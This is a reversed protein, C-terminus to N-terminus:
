GRQSFMAIELSVLQDLLERPSQPRRLPEKATMRRVFAVVERPVDPALRGLDAPASQRHEAALESLNRGRYPRQGSLLEFMVAGLSYIDSRIDPQLASVLYEPALYGCTGMVPRDAASGAEDCRRAFSLDILTVHGTPSLLLNGPTVDGHLWGATHLANLAEAAQRAIWLTKLVDFHQGAELRAQLSVGELWPMVLLPPSELVSASLIPVLHPHSITQGVLAERQLLRIAEPNNQWAPRLMKVAYHAPQDEPSDAPRARFIRALSGVGVFKVFEWQRIRCPPRAARAMRASVAGGTSRLRTQTM